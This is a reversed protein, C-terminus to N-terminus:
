ALFTKQKKFNLKESENYEKIKGHILIFIKQMLLKFCFQMIKNLRM